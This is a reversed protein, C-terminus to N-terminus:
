KQFSDMGTPYQYISWKWKDASFIALNRCIYQAQTDPVLFIAETM